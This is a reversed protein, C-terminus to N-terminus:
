NSLLGFQLALPMYAAYGERGFLPARPLLISFLLKFQLM